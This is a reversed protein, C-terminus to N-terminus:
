SLSTFDAALLLFTPKLFQTRPFFLVGRPPIGAGVAKECDFIHKTYNRMANTEIQINGTIPYTANRKRRKM